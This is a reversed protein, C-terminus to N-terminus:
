PQPPQWEFYSRYGAGHNRALWTRYERSSLRALERRDIPTTNTYIYVGRRGDLSTGSVVLEDRFDGALDAADMVGGQGPFPEPVDIQEVTKGNFHGFRKGAGFLDRVKGGTWNMPQWGGPFPNMLIKGDSSFLVRDRTTHGDRNTMMEMGPSGEWIDAAWGTHAHIWRPDDERNVKWIVKGTNADVCYAGANTNDEIGYFVQRNKQGPIMHAIDVIDAHGAYISWRLTGDSNLCTSGDFVEDKGDGDVDCVPIYHGGSGSTEAFSKYQWLQKLTGDYATFIENEYLGSQTIVAPHKGDLYAIGMVMRTSSRSLDSVLPTWPSKYKVNGTLGDLVAVYATDGEQLRCIVEDKGDGDLDYLLVPSNNANGFCQDHHVLPRRWISKGYSTFAELEVPYGPDASRETIGNDLRFVCDVVGDGDLDGFAPVFGGQRVNPYFAAIL